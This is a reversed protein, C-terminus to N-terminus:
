RLRRWWLIQDAADDHADGDRKEEGLRAPYAAHEVGVGQQQLGNGDDGDSREDEHPDAGAPGGDRQDGEDDAERGDDGVGRLAEDADIFIEDM